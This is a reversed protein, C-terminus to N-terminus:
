RQRAAEPMYHPAVSITQVEVTQWVNGSIYPEDELYKDEDARSDMNLLMISGIMKGEDNLMAAGLILLGEAKMKDAGALHAPRAAMRRNLADADTGDKGTVLFQM